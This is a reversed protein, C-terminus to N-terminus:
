GIIDKLQNQLELFTNIQPIKDINDLVNLTELKDLLNLKNLANLKEVSIIENLKSLQEIGKEPSLFDVEKEQAALLDLKKNIADM